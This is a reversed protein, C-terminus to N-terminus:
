LGLASEIQRCALKLVELRAFRKDNAPVLHWPAFKTDTLALM